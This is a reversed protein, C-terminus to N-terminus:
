ARIHPNRRRIDFEALPERELTRFNLMRFHSTLVDDDDDLIRNIRSLAAISEERHSTAIETALANLLVTVAAVANTFMMNDSKVPLTWTAVAAAPATVRDTVAVTPIDSRGPRRRARRAGPTLLAPALLGHGPREPRSRWWNSGRHLSAPRCTPPGGASRSCPTPPSTPSTPRSAWASPSSERRGPLAAEAVEAVLKRDLADVTRRSTRRRSTPSRPSSM